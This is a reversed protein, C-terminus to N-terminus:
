TLQNFYQMLTDYNGVVKAREPTDENAKVNEIFVEGDLTVTLKDNDDMADEFKEAGDETFRIELYRNEGNKYMIYVSDVDDNTLLVENDEGVMAIERLNDLTRHALEISTAVPEDEGCFVVCVIIASCLVVAAAIIICLLKKNIKKM